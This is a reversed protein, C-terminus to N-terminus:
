DNGHGPEQIPPEVGSDSRDRAWPHAAIQQNSSALWSATLENFRELEEWHHAHGGRLVELQSGRIAAQIERAYAPVTFSDSEGCTILTPVRVGDLRTLSDHSICAACQAAFAMPSVTTESALQRASRLENAHESYYDASWIRLQLLAAFDEPGLVNQTTRLHEFVDTLFADCRCWSSVLVVRNVLSPHNLVLEQAIAGGMSIGVVGAPEDGVARLVAACDNAMQSTSYPGAPADSGGVGRNDPVICRFRKAYDKVHPQWAIGDAGLGMILLIPEGEGVVRYALRCGGSEVYRRPVAGLDIEV